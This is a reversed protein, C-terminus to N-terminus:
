VASSVKTVQQIMNLFQTQTDARCLRHPLPSYLSSIVSITNSCAAMFPSVEFVRRSSSLSLLTRHCSMVMTTTYPQMWNEPMVATLVAGETKLRMSYRSSYMRCGVGRRGEVRLDTHEGKVDELLCADGQILDAIHSQTNSHRLDEGGDGTHTSSPLM